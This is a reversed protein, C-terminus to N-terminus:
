RRDKRRDDPDILGSNRLLRALKRREQMDRWRGPLDLPSRRISGDLYVANSKRKRAAQLDIIEGRAPRKTYHGVDAWARGYNIYLLACVPGIEAFLGVIPSQLGGYYWVLAFVIAMVWKSPVNVLWCNIPENPNLACFAIIISAIPLMFSVVPM